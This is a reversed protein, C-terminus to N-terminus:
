YGLACGDKRPDSGGVLIGDEGILIAQSGGLPEDPVSVQHGMEALRARVEPAYGREVKMGDLAGFARGAALERALEPSLGAARLAAPRAHAGPELM